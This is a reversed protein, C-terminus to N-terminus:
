RRRWVLPAREPHLMQLLLVPASDEEILEMVRRRAEGETEGEGRVPEVRWGGFLAAMAGVFEVQSFKRGPCDRAGESWGLFTGKEITVMEEEGPTGGPKIWRSPRWELADAGWYKPNTHVAAYAPIFMTKPPLVITRGNVQLTVTRDGVWKSVPVVTYLRLTELMIALCRKLHPFSTAYAPNPSTGIVATIEESLWTQVDPHAALFYMAFTFTHATTDHGAFNLMFMNGYIESETLGADTGTTTSEAQSARVLSSMLTKLQANPPTDKTSSAAAKEAEYQETMYRQFSACTDALKSLKWSSPLWPRFKALTSPGLAMIFVCNELIMQLSHKYTASASTDSRETHGEFKYFKGFGAGSLVHLSLTRLDEASTAVSPQRAWYALMDRGLSISESWVVDHNQENFCSAIMKRQSKWQQGEVTSLNKGFVNLIETMEVCRPFDLRRRFCDMIAEPNAVLM